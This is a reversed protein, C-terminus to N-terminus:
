EDHRNARILLFFRVELHGVFSSAILFRHYKAKLILALCCYKVVNAYLSRSLSFSLSIEGNQEEVLSFSHCMQVRMNTNYVYSKNKNPYNIYNICIHTNHFPFNIRVCLRKERNKEHVSVHTINLTTVKRFDKLCCWLYYVSRKQIVFIYINTNM